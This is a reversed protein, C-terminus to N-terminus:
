NSPKKKIKENIDAILDAVENKAPLESHINNKVYNFAM